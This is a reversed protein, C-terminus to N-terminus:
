IDFKNNGFSILFKSCIQMLPDEEIEGRNKLCDTVYIKALDCFYYFNHYVKIYHEVGGGVILTPSYVFSGSTYCLTGPTLMACGFWFLTTKSHDLILFDVCCQNHPAPFYQPLWINSKEDPICTIESYQYKINM